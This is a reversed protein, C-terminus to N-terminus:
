KISSELSMKLHEIDNRSKCVHLTALAVEESDEFWGAEALFEATITFILQWITEDSSVWFNEKGLSLGFRISKESSINAM